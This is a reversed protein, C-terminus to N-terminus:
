LSQPGALLQKVKAMIHAANIGADDLLQEKTGSQSIKKVSMKIVLGQEGAVAAAAFDGMGGHEFHDEM